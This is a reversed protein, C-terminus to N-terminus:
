SKSWERKKTQPINLRFLYIFLFSLFFFFSLRFLYIFTKDSIQFCHFPTKKKGLFNSFLPFGLWIFLFARRFSATIASSELEIGRCSWSSCSGCNCSWLAVACWGEAGGSSTFDSNLRERKSNWHNRVFEIPMQPNQLKQSKRKIQNPLYLPPIQSTPILRSKSKNM